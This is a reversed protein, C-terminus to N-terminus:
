PEIEVDIECGKFRDFCRPALLLMVKKCKHWLRSNLNFEKGRARLYDARRSYWLEKLAKKYVNGISLRTNHSCFSVDGNLEVAIRKYGTLCLSCNGKIKEQLSGSATARLINIMDNLNSKIKSEFRAAAKRLLRIYSQMNQKDHLLSLGRTQEVASMIRFGVKDVDNSYAFGLLEEISKINYKNIIFRFEVRSKVSPACLSVINKMLSAFLHKQTPQHLLNYKEKVVSSINIIIHDSKLVSKIKKNGFTANTTLTLQLGNEKILGIIREIDPHLMPEGYGSLIIKKTGMQACQDIIAKCKRFEIKKIFPHGRQRILPSHYPCYICHLNCEEILFLHAFDPQPMTAPANM